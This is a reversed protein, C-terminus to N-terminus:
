AKHMLRQNQQSPSSEQSAAVANAAILAKLQELENNLKIM